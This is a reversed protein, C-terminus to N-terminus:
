FYHLKIIENLSNIMNMIRDSTLSLRDIMASSLQMKIANKIDIKNIEILEKSLSNLNLKLKELALNKQEGSINSLLGSAKRAKIGLKLIEEKNSM